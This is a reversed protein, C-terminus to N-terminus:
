QLRQRDGKKNQFKGKRQEMKAKRNANWKEYQEASLIKRMEADKQQMKQKMESSKAQRQEMSEVPKTLREAKRREHMANIQAVQADSLNLEQKMQAMHKAHREERNQDKEARQKMMEARTKQPEPTQQAMAFTGMAFVAASLFIKKM